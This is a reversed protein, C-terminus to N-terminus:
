NKEDNDPDIGITAGDEWGAPILSERLQRKATKVQGLRLKGHDIAAYVLDEIKDASMNRYYRNPKLIKSVHTTTQRASITVRQGAKLAHEITRAIRDIEHQKKLTAVMGYEPNDVVLLNGETDWIWNIKQRDAGYNSKVQKLVREPSDKDPRDLYLRYRFAGDWATSGSFGEGSAEGTRSPHVLVLITMDVAASLDRLKRVCKKAFNRNNEPGDWIDYLGDLILMSPRLDMCTVRLQEFLQTTVIEYDKDIRILVNDDAESRDLVMLRDELDAYSRDFHALTADVRRHIEDESDECSFYLTTGGVTDRGDVAFGIANAVALHLSIFSKGTGGPGSLAGVESLPIWEDWWWHRALVPTEGKQSFNVPKLPRIRGRNNRHTTFDRQNEREIEELSVVDDTTSVM